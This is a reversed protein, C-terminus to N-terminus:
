LTARVLCVSDLAWCFSMDWIASSSAECSCFYQFLLLLLCNKNDQALFAEFSALLLFIIQEHTFSRLLQGHGGPLLGSTPGSGDFMPHMFVDVRPHDSAASGTSVASTKKIDFSMFLTFATVPCGHPRPLGLDAGAHPPFTNRVPTWSQAALPGCGAGLGEIWPNELCSIAHTAKM